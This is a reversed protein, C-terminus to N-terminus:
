KLLEGSKDPLVLKEDPEVNHLKSKDFEQIASRHEAKEEQVAKWESFVFVFQGTQIFM